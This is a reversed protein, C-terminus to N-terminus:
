KRKSDSTNYVHVISSVQIRKCKFQTKPSV